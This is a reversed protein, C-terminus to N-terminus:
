GDCFSYRYEWIRPKGKPSTTVEERGCLPEVLKAVNLFAEATQEKGVSQAAQAKVLEYERIFQCLLWIREQTEYLDGHDTHESLYKLETVIERFTPVWDRVDTPPLGTFECLPKIGYGGRLGAALKRKSLSVAADNIASYAKSVHRLACDVRSGKYDEFRTIM